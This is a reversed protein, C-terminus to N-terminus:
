NELPIEFWRVEDEFIVLVVPQKNEILHDIESLPYDWLNRLLNDSENDMLERLENSTISNTVEAKLGIEKAYEVPSYAKDSVVVNFM